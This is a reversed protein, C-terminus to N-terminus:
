GSTNGNENRIGVGAGVGVGIAVVVLAILGVVVWFLIGRRKPHDNNKGASDDKPVPEKETNPETVQGFGSDDKHM